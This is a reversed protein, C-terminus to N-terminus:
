NASRLVLLSDWHGMANGPGVSSLEHQVISYGHHFELSKFLAEFYADNWKDRNKFDHFEVSIQTAIASPWYELIGFESGECDLKVLDWHDIGLDLMLSRITICRVYKIQADYYSAAETIFNAEGTSFSAYRQLPRNDSVLAKQVFEVGAIDPDQVNPDPEMAVVLAKPRLALIDRTFGFGRAGVDLVVPSEPLLGVDITHDGSLKVLQRTIGM